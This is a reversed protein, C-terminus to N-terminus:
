LMIQGNVPISPNAQSFTFQPTELGLPKGKKEPFTLITDSVREPSNRTPATLLGLFLFFSLDPFNGSLWRFIGFFDAM